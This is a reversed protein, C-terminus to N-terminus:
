QPVKSAATIFAAILEDRGTETPAGVIFAWPSRAEGWHLGYVEEIGDIGYGSNFSILRVWYLDGEHGAAEVTYDDDDSLVFFAVFMDARPEPLVGGMFSTSLDMAQFGYRSARDPVMYDAALDSPTRSSIAKVGGLLSDPLADFLANVGDVYTPLLVGALGAPAPAEPVAEDIAESWEDLGNESAPPTAEDDGDADALTTASTAPAARTTTQGQTTALATAPSNTSESTVEVGSSGCSSAILAVLLAPLIKSVSM